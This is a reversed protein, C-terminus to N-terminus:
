HGDAERPATLLCEALVRIDCASVANINVAVERSVGCRIDGACELLDNVLDDDLGLVIGCIYGIAVVVEVAVDGKVIVDSSIHFDLCDLADNQAVGEERALSQCVGDVDTM